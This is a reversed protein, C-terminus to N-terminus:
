GSKLIGILDTGDDYKINTIKWGSKRSALLFKMEQITSLIVKNATKM